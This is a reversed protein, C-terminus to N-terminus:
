GGFDQLYRQIDNLTLSCISDRACNTRTIKTFDGTELYYKLVRLGYGTGNKQDMTYIANNIKNNVELENVFNRLTQEDVTSIINRADNDRTIKTSEGTEMYERLRRISENRDGYKKDLTSLVNNLKINSSEFMISPIMGSYNKSFEDADAIHTQIFEESGGFWDKSGGNSARWTVDIPIMGDDTYVVNWAHGGRSGNRLPDIIGLGRVYDCRIGVRDCLEKYVSAYGACVLGEKGVLNEPILGRLSASVHHGYKYNEFDRMVPVETSLIEYIQKARQEIPLNIDIKSQLNEIRQLISKMEYGNYTVRAEYKPNGLYKPKLSGNYDGLGDLLKIQVKSLDDIQDLMASSIESTSNYTVICDEGHRILNNIENITKKQIPTINLDPKTKVGYKNRNFRGDNGFFALEEELDINKSLNSQNLMEKVQSVSYNKGSISIFTNNVDSIQNIKQLNLDDLSNIKIETFRGKGSHYNAMAIQEDLSGISSQNNLNNIVVGTNDLSSNTRVISKTKKSMKANSSKLYLQSYYDQKIVDVNRKNNVFESLAKGEKTFEYNKFIDESVNKYVLQDNEKTLVFYEKTASLENINKVRGDWSIAGDDFSRVRLKKSNLMEDSPIIKIAQTKLPLNDINSAFAGVDPVGSFFFTKPTGYSRGGLIKIGEGTAKFYNSDLIQDTTEAVKTFHYLGNKKIQDNLGDILNTDVYKFKNSNSNLCDRIYTFLNTKKYKLDSMKIESSSSSEVKTKINTDNSKLIKNFDFVEGGLSSIGAIAIQSKVADWGGQSQWAEDWSKGESIMTVVSQFPVEVAGTATDLGVRIGSRTVTQLIPNSIKSTVKTFQGAGIKGGVYWQAGEWLGELGGIALGKLTSSEELSNLNVANGFPDTIYYEGNGKATIKFLLEQVNGDELSIEHTLTTSEGQKLKKIESYKEYDIAIDIDTGGYNLSISNKNWEEATYKGVGAATATAALTTASVGASVTTAAGTAVGGVGFTCITLAIVGAVYGVGELIQCGLGDSKFPSYANNDLWKGFETNYLPDFLCKSTWDYAVVTKTGDWLGKTAGWNWNGTVIGSAIDYIATGITGIGAGLIVALDGIAEVLRVVGKVLSITSNVFSAAIKKIHTWVTSAVDKVYPWVVSATKAIWAGTDKLAKSTWDKVSEFKESVWNSVKNVKDNIWSTASKYTSTIKSGVWKFGNIISTGLNKVGSVVKSAINAGTNTITKGVKNGVVGGITAGVVGATAGGVVAGGITGSLSGIKSAMSSIKNARNDSKSEIKKSDDIKKSILSNVDNIEKKIKYIQNAIDSVLGRYRFSSPLSNRFNVSTSYADQITNKSKDLSPLVYSNVKKADLVITGM